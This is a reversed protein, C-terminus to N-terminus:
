LHERLEKAFARADGWYVRIDLKSFYSNLYQEASRKQEDSANSQLPSLQVSIHVRRTSIELYSVVSRFLVRFNWDSLSYGVFLLSTSTFAEEIRPPLLSRSKPCRRRASPHTQASQIQRWRNTSEM